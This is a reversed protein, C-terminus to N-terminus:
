IGLNFEYLPGGAPGQVWTRGCLCGWWTEGGDLVVSDTLVLGCTCHYIPPKPDRM